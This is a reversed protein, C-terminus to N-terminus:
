KHHYIIHYFLNRCGSPKKYCRHPECCKLVFSEILSSKNQMVVIHPFSVALRCFDAGLQAAPASLPKNVVIIMSLYYYITSILEFQTQRTILLKLPKTLLSLTSCPFSLFTHSFLEHYPPSFWVSVSSHLFSSSCGSNLNSENNTNRNQYRPWGPRQTRDDVKHTKM